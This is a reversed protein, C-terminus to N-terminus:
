GCTGHPLMNLTNMFFDGGQLLRSKTCTASLSSTNCDKGYPRGGSHRTLRCDNYHHLLLVNPHDLSSGLNRGYNYSSLLMETSLETLTGVMELTSRLALAFHLRRLEARSDAQLSSKQWM